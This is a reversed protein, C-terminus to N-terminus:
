FGADLEVNDLQVSKREGSERLFDVYSQLTNQVQLTCDEGGFSEYDALVEPCIKTNPPVARYAAALIDQCVYGCAISLDMGYGQGRYRPQVYILNLDFCLLILHPEKADQNIWPRFGLYGVPTSNNAAFAVLVLHQDEIDLENEIRRKWRLDYRNALGYDIAIGNDLISNEAGMTLYELLATPSLDIPNLVVLTYTRMTAIAALFGDVDRRRMDYVELERDDKCIKCVFCLGNNRLTTSGEMFHNPQLLPRKAKIDSSM